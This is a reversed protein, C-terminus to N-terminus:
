GVSNGCYYTGDSEDKTTAKGAVNYVRSGDTASQEMLAKLLMLRFLDMDRCM